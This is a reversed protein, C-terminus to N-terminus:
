YNNLGIMALILILVHDKKRYLVSAFLEVRVRIVIEKPNTYILGILRVMGNFPVTFCHPTSLKCRM